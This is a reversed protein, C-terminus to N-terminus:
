AVLVARYRVTGKRVRDMAANVDSMPYQEIMPRIGHRAAFELMAAGDAPSGLRGGAVSRMNEIVPFAPFSVPSHPVGVIVLKGEPRLTNILAAWDTDASITSIIYDFSKAAKEIEGKEKTAIFNTAGFGRAEDEKGHTSSIATVECGSKALFQLALHGLGGIGLVATRMGSTVGYHLMPSYVTSGACMLPGAFESPISDPVPLAFHADCRVAEAFGGHRGVITSVQAACLHEKGRHCWECSHCSGCQWGLGVRQGVKLHKVSAGAARVTGVVEHGPVIPYPTFGWENDTMSIDSHCIGCHTIKIEVDTDALPGPEYSWPTLPQKAASTAYARIPM